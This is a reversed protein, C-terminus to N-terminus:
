SLFSTCSIDSLLCGDRIETCFTSSFSCIYSCFSCDLIGSPRLIHRVLFTYLSLSYCCSCCGFYSYCYFCSHCYFCLYSVSYFFYPFSFLWTRGSVCGPLAFLSLSLQTFFAPILGIFSSTLMFWNTCSLLWTLTRSNSVSFFLLLCNSPFKAILV